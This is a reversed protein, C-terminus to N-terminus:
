EDLRCGENMLGNVFDFQDRECLRRAPAYLRRMSALRDSAYRTLGAEEPQSEARLEAELAAHVDETEQRVAEWAQSQHVILKADGLSAGTIEVVARICDVQSFGEDKLGAM